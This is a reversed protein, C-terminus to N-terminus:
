LTDVEAKGTVSFSLVDNHIVHCREFHRREHGIVVVVRGRDLMQLCSMALEILFDAGGVGIGLPLHTQIVGFLQAEAGPIVLQDLDSLICFVSSM